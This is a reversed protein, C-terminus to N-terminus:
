IILPICLEGLLSTEMGSFSPVQLSPRAFVIRFLEPSGLLTSREVSKLVMVLTSRFCLNTHLTLSNLVLHPHIHAQSRSLGCTSLSLQLSSSPSHTSVDYQQVDGKIWDLVKYQNVQINVARGTTNYGNRYPLQSEFQYQPQDNADLEPRYTQFVDM